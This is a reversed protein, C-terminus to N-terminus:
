LAIIRITIVIEGQLGAIVFGCTGARKWLHPPLKSRMTLLGIDDWRRAGLM